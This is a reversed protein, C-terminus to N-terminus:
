WQSNDQLERACRTYLDTNRGHRDVFPLVEANIKGSKIFKCFAKGLKMVKNAKDVNGDYMALVIPAYRRQVKALSHGKMASDILVYMLEYRRKLTNVNQIRSPIRFELTSDKVNAVSSRGGGNYMNDSHPPLMTVNGNCYTNNLRKRWLALIIGSIPRLKELLEAGSLGEVAVTMHGGCRYDTPSWQDDIVREAEHFMNYVKDRWVCAGILPLINTVAEYGCSSDTEFGCFLPYPRVSGRGLRNKEIEFGITFKARVELESSMRMADRDIPKVNAIDGLSAGGNYNRFSPKGHYHSMEGRSAINDNEFKIMVNKIYTMV